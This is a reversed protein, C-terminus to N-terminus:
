VTLEPELIIKKKKEKLVETTNVRLDNCLLLQNQNDFVNLETGEM